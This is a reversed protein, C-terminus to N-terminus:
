NSLNSIKLLKRDLHYFKNAMKEQFTCELFFALLHEILKEFLYEEILGDKYAKCISRTIRKIEDKNCLHPDYSILNSFQDTKNKDYEKHYDSCSKKNRCFGCSTPTKLTM